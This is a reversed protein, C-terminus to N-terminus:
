LQRCHASSCDWQLCVCVAQRPTLRQVQNLRVVEITDAEEVYFGVLLDGFRVDPEHVYPLIFLDCVDDSFKNPFKQHLRKVFANPGCTKAILDHVRISNVTKLVGWVNDLVHVDRKSQILPVGVPM